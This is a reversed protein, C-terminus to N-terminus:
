EIFNYWMYLCLVTYFSVIFNILACISLLELFYFICYATVKLEEEEIEKNWSLDVTEEESTHLGFYATLYWLHLQFSFVACFTSKRQYPFITIQVNRWFIKWKPYRRFAFSFYIFLVTKCFNRSWSILNIKWFTVRLQYNLM